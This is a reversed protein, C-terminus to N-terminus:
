RGDYVVKTKTSYRKYIEEWNPASMGDFCLHKKFTERYIEKATQTYLWNHSDPTTTIDIVPIGFKKNWYHNGASLAAITFEGRLKNITPDRRFNHEYYYSQHCDLVIPKGTLFRMRHSYELEVFFSLPADLSSDLVGFQVNNEWESFICNGDLWKYGVIVKEPTAYDYVTPFVPHTSSFGMLSFGIEAKAKDLRSVIETSEQRWSLDDDCSVLYRGKADNMHAWVFGWARGFHLSNIDSQIYVVKKYNSNQSITELENRNPSVMIVLNNEGLLHVTNLFKLALHTSKYTSATLVLDYM